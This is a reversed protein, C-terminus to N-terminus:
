LHISSKSRLFASSVVQPAQSPGDHKHRHTMSTVTRLYCRLAAASSLHPLRVLHPTVSDIVTRRTQSPGDQLITMFNILNKNEIFLTKSRLGEISRQAQSPGDYQGDLPIFLAAFYIALYPVVSDMVTRRSWSSGDRTGEIWGCKQLNGAFLTM